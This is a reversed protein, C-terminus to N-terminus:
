FRKIRGKQRMDRASQLESGQPGIIAGKQWLLLTQTKNNKKTKKTPRKKSQPHICSSGSPFPIHSLPLVPGLQQPPSCIPSTQCMPAGPCRTLWLLRRPRRAAMLASRHLVRSPPFLLLPPKEQKLDEGRVLPSLDHGHSYPVLRQNMSSKRTISYIKM